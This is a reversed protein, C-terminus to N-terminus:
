QAGPRNADRFDQEMLTHLQQYRAEGEDPSAYSPFNQLGAKRARESAQDENLIQGDWVSPLIYYRGDITQGTSYVTSIDGSAHPVGGRRFENLHHQYLYQEQPTWDEPLQQGPANRYKPPANRAIMDLLWQTGPPISTYDSM